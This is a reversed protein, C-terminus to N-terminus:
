AGVFHDMGIDNTKKNKILIFSSVKHFSDRLYVTFYKGVLSFEKKSLIKDIPKMFSQNLHLSIYKTISYHGDQSIFTVKVKTVVEIHNQSSTFSLLLYSRFTDDIVARCFQRSRHTTNTKTVKTEKIDSERKDISNLYPIFEIASDARNKKYLLTYNANVYLPNLDKFYALIRISGRFNDIGLLSASITTTQNHGLVVYKFYKKICIGKKDYIEIDFYKKEMYDNFLTIESSFNKYNNLFLFTQVTHRDGSYYDQESHLRKAFAYYTAHSVSAYTINKSLYIYAARGIYSDYEIVVHGNRNKLFNLVKKNTVKIKCFERYKLSKGELLLSEGQYNFVRFKFNIKKKKAHTNQILLYLKKKKTALIPISGQAVVDKSSSWFAGQEHVSTIVKDNYYDAFARIIGKIEFNNKLSLEVIVDRKFSMEKSDLIFSADDELFILEKKIYKGNLEFYKIEIQVNELHYNRYLFNYIYVRCYLNGYPFYITSDHTKTKLAKM